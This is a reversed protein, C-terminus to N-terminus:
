ETYVFDDICFYTPAMVDNCEVSFVIKTVTGLKDLGVTKWDAVVKNDSALPVEITATETEGDFGIISVSFDSYKTGTLYLYTWTNNAVRLSVPTVAASFEIVPNYTYGPGMGKMDYAVAFKNQADDATTYVSFQNDTGLTTKDHCSSIAFKCWTDWVGGFDSFYSLFSAIGEKYIVGDFELSGDIDTALTKGWLYGDSGLEAESFTITEAQPPTPTNDDDTCAAFALAAFALLFLKKMKRKNKHGYFLFDPESSGSDFGWKM